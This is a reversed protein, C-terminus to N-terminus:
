AADRQPSGVNAAEPTEPSVEISTLDFPAHWGYILGPLDSRRLDREALQRDSLATLRRLRQADDITRCFEHWVTATLRLAAKIGEGLAANRRALAQWVIADIEDPSPPQWDLKSPPHQKM